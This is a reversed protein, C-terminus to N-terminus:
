EVPSCPPRYCTVVLFPKSHPKRIELVFSILTKFFIVFVGTMSMFNVALKRISYDLKTENISLFVISKDALLIRLGAESYM